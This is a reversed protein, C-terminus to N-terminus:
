DARLAVGAIASRSPSGRTQVSNDVGCSAGGVGIVDKNVGPQSVLYQYAAEIDDPWKARQAGIEAPTLKREPEGGSEGFGRYDFTLFTSVQLRFSSRWAM